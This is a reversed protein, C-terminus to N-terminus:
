LGCPLFRSLFGVFSLSQGMFYVRIRVFDCSFCDTCYKMIFGIKYIQM